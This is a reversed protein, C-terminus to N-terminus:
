QLYHFAAIILKYMCQHLIIIDFYIKKKGYIAYRLVVIVIIHNKTNNLSTIGHLHYYVSYTKPISM